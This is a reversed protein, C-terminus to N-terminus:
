KQMSAPLQRMIEYFRPGVVDWNQYGLTSLVGCAFWFLRSFLYFKVTSRRYKIRDRYEIKPQVSGGQQWPWQMRPLFKGVFPLIKTWVFVMGARTPPFKYALYVTGILFLTQFVWGIVPLAFLTGFIWTIIWWIYGVIEM